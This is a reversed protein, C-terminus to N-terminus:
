KRSGDQEQANARRAEAVMDGTSVLADEGEQWQPTGADVVDGIKDMANGMHEVASGVASEVHDSVIEAADAVTGAAHEVHVAAHEMGEIAREVLRKKPKVVMLVVILTFIILATQLGFSAHFGVMSLGSEATPAGPDLELTAAAMMSVM